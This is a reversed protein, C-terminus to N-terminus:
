QHMAKVVDIWAATADHIKASAFDRHPFVIISRRM